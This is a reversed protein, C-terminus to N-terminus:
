SWHMPAAAGDSQRLFRFAADLQPRDGLASAHEDFIEGCGAAKL